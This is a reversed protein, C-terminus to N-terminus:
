DELDFEQSYRRSQQSSTDAASHDPVLPLLKVARHGQFLRSIQSTPVESNATATSMGAVYLYTGTSDMYCSDRPVPGVGKFYRVGYTVDGGM